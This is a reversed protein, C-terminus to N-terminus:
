HSELVQCRPSDSSLEIPYGNDSVWLPEGADAAQITHTQRASLKEIDGLWYLLIHTDLLFKM